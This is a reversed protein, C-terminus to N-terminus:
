LISERERERGRRVYVYVFMNVITDGFLITFEVCSFKLFGVNLKTKKGIQTKKPLLVKKLPNYHILTLMTEGIRTKMEQGPGKTERPGETQKSYRDDNFNGIKSPHFLAFIHYIQLFERIFSCQKPQYYLSGQKNGMKTASNVAKEFATKEAKTTQAEGYKPPPNELYEKNEVRDRTFHDLKVIHYNKLHTSVVM